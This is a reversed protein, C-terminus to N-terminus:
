SPPVHTDLFGLIDGLAPGLTFDNHGTPPFAAAKPGAAAALVARGQAVPTTRDQAGHLIFVPTEVGAIRRESPFRDWMLLHVPLWPYHHAAVDPLATFPAELLLAGVPRRAALEVAVGSGLSEGYLVTRARHYGRAEAWAMWAEGDRVLGAETPSGANGPYGRYSALVVSWGADVFPRAKLTRHGHNGANGHFLIVVRDPLASGPRYWGSLTLGDATDAEIATLGPPLPPVEAMPIYLLQRQFVTMALLVVGYVVALSGLTHLLRAVMASM